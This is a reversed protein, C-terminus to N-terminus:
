DKGIFIESIQVASSSVTDYGSIVFRVFRYSYAQKLTIKEGESANAVPDIALNKQIEVFEEGDNSGYLDVATARLGSTTQDSRHHWKFYNFPYSSKMDVTFYITAGAPTEAGKGPKRLSLFTSFIGDLMDEPYGTVGKDPVCPHSTLIEWSDRPFDGLIEDTVRIFSSTMAGGEDEAQIVIEVDGVVKGTVIGSEDVVAIEPNSSTYTVNPNDATEPKISLVAGLNLTNGILLNCRRYEEPLEITRVWNPQVIVTCTKYVNNNNIARITLTAEGPTIAQIAGKPSVTFVNENSSTFSFSYDAKDTAHVPLLKLRIDSVEGKSFLLAGREDIDLLDIGSVRQDNYIYEDSCGVFVLLVLTLLYLYKINKKM